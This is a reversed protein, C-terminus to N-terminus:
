KKALLIQRQRYAIHYPNLFLFFQLLFLSYKAFQVSLSALVKNCTEHTIYIYYRRWFLWDQETQLPAASWRQIRTHTRVSRSNHYTHRVCAYIYVCIFICSINLLVCINHLFFELTIRGNIYTCKYKRRKNYM